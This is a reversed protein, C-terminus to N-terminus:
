ERSQLLFENIREFVREFFDQHKEREEEASTPLPQMLEALAARLEFFDNDRFIERLASITNEVKPIHEFRKLSEPKLVYCVVLDAYYDAYDDNLGVPLADLGNQEIIHKIKQELSHGLEHVLTSPLVEQHPHDANLTVSDFDEPTRSESNLRANFGSHEPKMSRYQVHVNEDFFPALADIIRHVIDIQYSSKAGEPFFSITGQEYKEIGESKQESSLKREFDFKESNVM